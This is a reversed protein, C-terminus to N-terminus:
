LNVFLMVVYNLMRISLKNHCPTKNPNLNRIIERVDEASFATTSFRKDTLYSTNTPLESNNIILSYQKSFFSKFLKGKKFDIIFCNEDFLPPMLPVKKNSLFNKLLSWDSKYNKQFNNLKKAIRYYFSSYVQLIKRESCKIFYLKLSMKHVMLHKM